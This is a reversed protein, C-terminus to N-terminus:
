EQKCSLCFDQQYGDLCDCLSDSIPCPQACPPPNQNHPPHRHNVLTAKPPLANCSGGLQQMTAVPTPLMFSCPVPFNADPGCPCLGEHDVCSYTWVSGDQMQLLAGQAAAEAIRVCGPAHSAAACVTTPMLADLLNVHLHAINCYDKVKGQRLVPSAWGVHHEHMYPIKGHIYTLEVHTQCHYLLQIM